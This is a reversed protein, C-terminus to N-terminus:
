KAVRKQLNAAEHHIAAYDEAGDVAKVIIDGYRMAVIVCERGNHFAGRSGTFANSKVRVVDNIRLQGNRAQVWDADLDAAQAGHTVDEGRLLKIFTALLPKAAEADNLRQALSPHALWATLVALMASQEQASMTTESLQTTAWALYADKNM